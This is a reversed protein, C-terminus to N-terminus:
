QPDSQELAALYAGTAYPIRLDRIIQFEEEVLINRALLPIGLEDTFLKLGNIIKIREPFLHLNRIIHESLCAIRFDILSLYNLIDNGLYCNDLGISVNEPIAGVLGSFEEVGMLQVKVENILLIIEKDGAFSSILRAYEGPTMVPIWPFLIPKEISADFLDMAGRVLFELDTRGTIAEGLFVEFLDSKIVPDRFAIYHHTPELTFLNYSHRLEIVSDVRAGDEIVHRLGHAASLFLEKKNELPHVRKEVRAIDSLLKRPSEKQFYIVDSSFSIEHLYNFASLVIDGEIERCLENFRDVNHSFDVISPFLATFEYEFFNSVSLYIDSPFNFECAWLIINKINEIDYHLNQMGRLSEIDCLAAAKITLVGISKVEFDLNIIHELVQPLFPLSTVPDAHASDLFIRKKSKLYEWFRDNRAMLPSFIYTRGRGDNKAAYLAQDSRSLLESINSAMSPYEAIGASFSVNFTNEGGPRQFGISLLNERIADVTGKSISASIGPFLIVFEEGGFRAPFLSESTYNNLVDALKMLVIDGTQHGYTDNIKKFHDLDLICLSIIDNNPNELELNFRKLFERRNYLRTLEDTVTFKYFEDFLKIRSEVLVKLEQPNYPKVLYADAGTKLALIRDDIRDSYSIFVFPILKTKIGTRIKKCLEYGNLEPLDIESVIISPVHYTMNSIADIGSHATIFNYSEPGLTRALTDCDEVSKMVVLVTKKTNGPTEM